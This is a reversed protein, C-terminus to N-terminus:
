SVMWLGTIVLKVSIFMIFVSSGFCLLQVIYSNIYIIHVYMCKYYMLMGTVPAVETELYYRVDPGTWLVSVSSDNVYEVQVFDNERTICVLGDNPGTYEAQIM